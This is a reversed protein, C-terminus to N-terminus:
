TKREAVDRLRNACQRDLFASRETEEMELYSPHLNARPPDFDFRARWQREIFADREEPSLDIYSM